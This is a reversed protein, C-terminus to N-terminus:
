TCRSDALPRRRNLGNLIDVVPGTGPRCTQVQNNDIFCSVAFDGPQFDLRPLPNHPNNPYSRSVENVKVRICESFEDLYGAWFDMNDYIKYGWRNDLWRALWNFGRSWRRIMSKKVLTSSTYIKSPRSIMRSTPSM